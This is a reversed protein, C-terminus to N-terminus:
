GVPPGREPHLLYRPSDLIIEISPHYAQEIWEVATPPTAIVALPVSVGNAFLVIACGDDAALHTDHHHLQQHLIPSAAFLGLAFIM